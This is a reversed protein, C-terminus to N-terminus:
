SLCDSGQLEKFRVEAGCARLCKDPGLVLQDVPHPRPNVPKISLCSKGVQPDGVLEIRRERYWVTSTANEIFPQPGFGEQFIVAPNHPFPVSADILCIAKVVWNAQGLQIVASLNDNM